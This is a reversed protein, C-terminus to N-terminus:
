ALGPLPFLRHVLQIDVKPVVAFVREFVKIVLINMLGSDVAALQQGQQGNEVRIM